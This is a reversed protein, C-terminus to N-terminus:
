FGCGSPEIIFVIKFRKEEKCRNIQLESKRVGHLRDITFNQIEGM